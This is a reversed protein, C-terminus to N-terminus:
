YGLMPTYAGAWAGESRPGLCIEGVTGAPLARGEPDCIRVELHPLPQGSAGPPNPAHPTSVSVWSPAETLGYMFVAGDGFFGRIQERLDEPVHMSGVSTMRLTSIDERRIDPSGLLDYLVSPVSSVAELREGKIAKVIVSIHHKEICYASGGIALQLLPGTIMINVITLPTAVGLRLITQGLERRGAIALAINHQSHAVGKAQGTTGSTYSLAAPLWPDVPAPDRPAGAHAAMLREWPSAPDPPDVVIIRQLEPLSDRQGEIEGAIDPTALLLSVGADRLMFAKEAVAYNRNIGLWIANLRQCALFAIIIDPHNGVSAAMRGGVGLGLSRLAAAAACVAAELQAYSYRRDRSALAEREPWAAVAHDLISAVDQAGSPVPLRRPPPSLGHIGFPDDDRM